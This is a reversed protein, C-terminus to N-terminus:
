SIYYIPYVTNECLHLAAKVEVLQVTVLALVMEPVAEMIIRIIIKSAVPVTEQMPEMRIRNNSNSHSEPHELELMLTQEQTLKQMPEQELIIPQWKSRLRFQVRHPPRRM